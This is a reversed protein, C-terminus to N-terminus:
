TDIDDPASLSLDEPPMGAQVLLSRLVDPELIETHSLGIATALRRVTDAATRGQEGHERILYEALEVVTYEWAHQEFEPL